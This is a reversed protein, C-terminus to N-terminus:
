GHGAELAQPVLPVLSYVSLAQEIYGWVCDAVTGNDMHVSWQHPERLHFIMVQRGGDYGYWGPTTPESMTEM